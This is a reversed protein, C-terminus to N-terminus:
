LYYCRPGWMADVNINKSWLVKGTRADYAFARKENDGGYIVGHNVTIDYM